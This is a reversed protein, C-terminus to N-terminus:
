CSLRSFPELPRSVFILLSLDLLISDSVAEPYGRWTVIGKSRITRLQWLRYPLFLLFIASFFASAFVVVNRTEVSAVVSDESSLMVPPLLPSRCRDVFTWGGVQLYSPSTFSTFLVHELKQLVPPKITAEGCHLLPLIGRRTSTRRQDQIQNTKFSVLLM